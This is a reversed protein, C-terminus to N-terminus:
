YFFIILFLLYLVGFYYDFMFIIYVNCNGIYCERKFILGYLLFISKMNLFMIKRLILSKLLWGYKKFCM